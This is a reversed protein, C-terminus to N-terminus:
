VWGYGTTAPTGSSVLKNKAQWRQVARETLKGFYGNVVGEPYLTKDQALFRQLRSVEGGTTSDSSGLGFSRTLPEAALVSSPTIFFSILLLGAFFVYKSSM